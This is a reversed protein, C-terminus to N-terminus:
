MCFFFLFFMWVLSASEVEAERNETEKKHSSEQESPFSAAAFLRDISAVAFTEEVTLCVGSGHCRTEARCVVPKTPGPILRSKPLVFRQLTDSLTYPQDRKASPKRLVPSEKRHAQSAPIISSNQSSWLLAKSQHGTIPNKKIRGQYDM